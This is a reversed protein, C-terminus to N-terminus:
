IEVRKSLQERWYSTGHPQHKNKLENLQAILTADDTITEVDPYSIVSWAYQGRLMAKALNESFGDFENFRITAQYKSTVEDFDDIPTQGNFFRFNLGEVQRAVNLFRYLGYEEERGLHYSMWVTPTSSHEYTTQYKGPEDFLMPHVDAHIGYELLKKQEVVNECVHTAKRFVWMNSFTINLIDSGCWFIKSQGRHTILRLYDGWHYMGFFLTPEKSFWKFDGYDEYRARLKLRFNDISSSIHIRKM